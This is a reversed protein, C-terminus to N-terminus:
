HKWITWTATASPCLHFLADFDYALSDIMEGVDVRECYRENADICKTM